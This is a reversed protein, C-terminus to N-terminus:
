VGRRQQLNGKIREVFKKGERILRRIDAEALDLAAYRNLLGAEDVGSHQFEHINLAVDTLAVVEFGYVEELLQAVARMLGTPMVAAVWDAREVVKGIRTKVRGSFRRALIQRNLAAAAALVARWGQFAKGAANRYLGEGLFREALEFEALAEELRVEVYARVDRWPYVVTAV